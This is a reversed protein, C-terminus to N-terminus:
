GLLSREDAKEGQQIPFEEVAQLLGQLIDAPTPPCGSIEVTVPVLNQIGGLVDEAPAFVHGDIACQGLAVVRKPAPMGRFVNEIVDRMQLTVIGTVVLIDAHRVSPTFSFGFRSFDYDPSAVLQLESECGNCSGADVHRVAM